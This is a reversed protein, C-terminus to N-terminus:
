KGEKALADAWQSVAGDKYAILTAKARMASRISNAVREVEAIAANLETAFQEADLEWKGCDVELAKLRDSITM